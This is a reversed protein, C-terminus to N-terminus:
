ETVPPDLVRPDRARAATALASVIESFNPGEIETLGEVYAHYGRAEIMHLASVVPGVGPYHEDLQGIKHAGLHALYPLAARNTVPELVTTTLVRDHGEDVVLEALARLALAATWSRRRRAPLVALQDFYAIRGRLEADPDFGPRWAITPRQAWLPSARLIPDPLTLTFGIAEDGLELLWVRARALLQAYRSDESGLLFGSSRAESAATIPLGRRVELVARLDTAGARRVRAGDELELQSGAEGVADRM